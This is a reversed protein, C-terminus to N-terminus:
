DGLRHIQVPSNNKINEAEQVIQSHHTFLIVQNKRSLEGLVQLTARSREDDFNILIDDVIFPMPESAELRWELSALRLALYLQDRTGSSMQGASLRREGKKVGALVTNGKDDVDTLLGKFSGLTLDNFYKSAIKLVPDQHMQRYREIQHQLIKSGIKMQSYRKALRQIKALKQEMKEAIEAARASGDMADLKNNERGIVEGIENIGPNIRKEIDKKLSEIQGPLEDANVKDAQKELQEISIGAGTKALGAEIDSIKEKLRQYRTFKDIVDTLEEPNECEATELLENMQEKASELNKESTFIEKELSDIDKSLEQYLINEKQARGLLSHLRLIKQDLPLDSLDPASQNVLKQVDKEFQAADRDIGNIRKQLDEAQKLKDFCGALIDLFDIAQSTSVSTKIGLGSIANEWRKQWRKLADQAEELEERTQIFTKQAKEKKERLKELESNHCAIKEIVSEALVLVPGLQEGKFNNEEGLANLQKEVGSKLTKRLKEGQSIEEQTTFIDGVKFCLRDMRILWANMEKPSLPTIESPKWLSIWSKDFKQEELDLIRSEQDSEIVADKLHEKRTQLAAMAAIRDAERRLRDAIIDAKGVYREYAEPLSQGADYERSEQKIDEHDLWQRRILQWGQERKERIHVLEQESPVTGSYVAKKIEARVNKLEKEINKRNKELERKQDIIQSYHNEFKQVTELLPLELEMLASLDGHWLGIRKLEGLCQGKNLDIEKQATKLQEDIDGSKQALKVESVLGSLERAGSMAALGKEAEIQEQEAKRSQKQVSELQQAIAEYQTSLAQVTKKKILMPRLNEVEELSLDPRIQRVMDAAERRLGIRIGNREPKDKQGKRYEGLRQHFDDIIEAQNLLEKNLCIARRKQELKKLREIDKEKQQGAERMKRSVQERREIFDTPLFVVRGLAKLQEQRSKRAALEPVAQQLRELGHLERNKDERQKELEARHAEANELAKKQDKWERSSLSIIKAEKKLEKFHKVARNIEPKQGAPKFLEAAEKEFDDIITSLSSLGAGAAFLAQGIEGKQALIEEGGKVLENHDIGYISEFLESDLGLLFSNLVTSDLPNGDMDIIDNIRKKRRQFCLEERASNELCGSVLLKGYSHLFNDPTTQDFGYLLSKLGRLASSKGAENLGFIIYLGPEKLDFELSQNTFPGFAKLDLRKLRM